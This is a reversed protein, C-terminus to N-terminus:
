NDIVVYHGFSAPKKGGKTIVWLTKQNSCEPAIGDGDTFIVLLPIKYNDAVQFVARFDTGGSKLREKNKVYDKLSIPETCETDFRIVKISAGTITNISKLENYFKTILNDSISGSEDIAVLANVGIARKTGPLDDFRRSQRKYSKRVIIKGRGSLFRKLTNRWNVKFDQYVDDMISQLGVPMEGENGAEEMMQALDSMLSKKELQSIQEQALNTAKLQKESDVALIVEDDKGIFYVMEENQSLMNYYSEAGKQRPLNLKLRNFLFEVTISDEPLFDPAIYENVALDCAISWLAPERQGCRYPHMLILHLLEHIVVSIKHKDPLHAFWEPNYLIKLSPISAMKITKVAQTEVPTVSAAVHGYFPQKILLQLM